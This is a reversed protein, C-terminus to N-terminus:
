MFFISKFSFMTGSKSSKLPGLVKFYKIFSGEYSTFFVLPLSFRSTESSLVSKSFSGSTTPNGFFTSLNSILGRFVSLDRFGDCRFTCSPLSLSLRSAALSLLFTESFSDVDPYSSPPM